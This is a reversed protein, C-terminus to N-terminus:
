DCPPWKWPKMISCPPPVHVTSSSASLTLSSVEMHFDLNILSLQFVTIAGPLPEPHPSASVGVSIQWWKGLFLPEKVLEPTMSGEASSLSIKLFHDWRTGLTSSFCLCIISCARCLRNGHSLFEVIRIICMSVRPVCQLARLVWVHVFCMNLVCLMSVMCWVPTFHM